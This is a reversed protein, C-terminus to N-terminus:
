KNEIFNHLEHALASHTLPGAHGHEGDLARDLWEQDNLMFNEYDLKRLPDKIENTYGWVNSFVIRENKYRELTSTIKAVCEDTTIQNDKIRRNREGKWIQNSESRWPYSLVVIHLKTNDIKLSKDLFRCTAEISAGNWALNVHGLGTKESLKQVWCETYHKMQYGCTFSDGVTVFYDDGPATQPRSFPEWTTWFWDHPVLKDYKNYKINHMM